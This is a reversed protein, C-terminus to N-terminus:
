AVHSFARLKTIFTGAAASIRCDMEMQLFSNANSPHILGLANPSIALLAPPVISVKNSHSAMRGIFNAARKATLFNDKAMQFLAAASVGAQM